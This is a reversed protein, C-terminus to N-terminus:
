TGKKQDSGVLERRANANQIDESVQLASIKDLERTHVRRWLAVIGENLLVGGLALGYSIAAGRLLVGQSGLIGTALGIVSAVIMIMERRLHPKDFLYKKAAVRRADIFQLHPDEERPDFVRDSLVQKINRRQILNSIFYFIYLSLVVFM